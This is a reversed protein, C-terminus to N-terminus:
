YAAEPKKLISRRFTGPFDGPLAVASIKLDNLFSRSQLFKTVALDFLDFLNKLCCGRKRKRKRSQPPIKKLFIASKLPYKLHFFYTSNGQTGPFAPRTGAQREPSTL